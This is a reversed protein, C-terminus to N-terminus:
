EKIAKLKKPKYRKGYPYVDVPEEKNKLREAIVEPTPMVESELSAFLDETLLENADGNLYETQLLKITEAIGTYNKIIASRKTADKEVKFLELERWYNDRSQVLLTFRPSHQLFCYALIMSNVISNKNLIIQEYQPMFNTEQENMEFEAEKGAQVKRKLYNDEQEYPTGKTYIFTIYRLIKWLPMEIPRNFEEKAPILCYPKPMTKLKALVEDDEPILYPNLFLGDFNDEAYM